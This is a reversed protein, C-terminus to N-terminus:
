LISKLLFTLKSYKIFYFRFKLLNLDFSFKQRFKRLLTLFVPKPLSRLEFKVEHQYWDTGTKKQKLGASIPVLKRKVGTVINRINPILAHEFRTLYGKKHNSTAFWNQEEFNKGRGLQTGRKGTVSFDFFELVVIVNLEHFYNVVPETYSWFM